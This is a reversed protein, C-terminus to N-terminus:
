IIKSSMRKMGCYFCLGPKQVVFQQWTSQGTVRAPVSRTYPKTRFKKSKKNKEAKFKRDARLRICKRKM